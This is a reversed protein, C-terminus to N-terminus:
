EGPPRYDLLRMVDSPPALPLFGKVGSLRFTLSRTQGSQAETSITPLSAGGVREVTAQGSGEITGDDRRKWEPELITYVQYRRVDTDSARTGAIEEVFRFRSSADNHSFMVYWQSPLTYPSYIAPQFAERNDGAGYYTAQGEQPVRTELQYIRLLQGTDEFRVWSKESQGCGGLVIPLLLLYVLWSKM